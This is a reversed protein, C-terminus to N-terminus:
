GQVPVRFELSTGQGPKSRIELQGGLGRARLTMRELGTHSEGGKDVCRALTDFGQGDDRVVLLM